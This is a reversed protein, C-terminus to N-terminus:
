LGCPMMWRIVLITVTNGLGLQGGSNNRCYRVSGAVLLADTHVSGAALAVAHRWQRFGRSTGPYQPINVLSRDSIAM